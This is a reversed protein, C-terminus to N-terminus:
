SGVQVVHTPQVRLLQAALHFAHEGRLGDAQEVLVAAKGIVDCQGGAPILVAVVHM